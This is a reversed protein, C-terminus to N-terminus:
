SNDREIEYDFCGYLQGDIRVDYVNGYVLPTPPRPVHIAEIVGIKGTMSPFPADDIEALRVSMGIELM